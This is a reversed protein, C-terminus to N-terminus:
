VSSYIVFDFLVFHAVAVCYILKLKKKVLIDVDDATFIYVYIGQLGATRTRKKLNIENVDCNAM